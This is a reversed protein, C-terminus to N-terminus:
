MPKIRQQGETTNATSQEGQDLSNRRQNKPKDQTQKGQNEPTTMKALKESNGMEVVEHIGISQANSSWSEKFHSEGKRWIDNNFKCCPFLLIHVPPKQKEKPELISLQEAITSLNEATTIIGACKKQHKRTFELAVHYNLDTHVNTVGFETSLTDIFDQKRSEKTTTSNEQPLFSRGGHPVFIIQLQPHKKRIAQLKKVLENKHLEHEGDSIAEGAVAGGWHVTVFPIDKNNKQIEFEQELLLLERMQNKEFLNKHVNKPTTGTIADFSTTIETNKDTPKLDLEENLTGPMIAAEIKCNENLKRIEAIFHLTSKTQNGGVIFTLKDLNFQSPHEKIQNLLDELNTGKVVIKGKIAKETGKILGKHLPEPESFNALTKAKELAGYDDGRWKQKEPKTYYYIAM